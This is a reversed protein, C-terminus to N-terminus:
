FRNSISVFVHLVCRHRYAGHLRIWSVMYHNHSHVLCVTQRLDHEATVGHSIVNYFHRGEEERHVLLVIPLQFMYSVLKVLPFGLQRDAGSAGGTLEQISAELDHRTMIGLNAGVGLSGRCAKILLERLAEPNFTGAHFHPM